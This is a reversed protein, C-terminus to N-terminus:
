HCYPAGAGLETVFKRYTAPNIRENLVSWYRLLSAALSGASGPL